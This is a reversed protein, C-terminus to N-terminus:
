KACEELGTRDRWRDKFCSKGRVPINRRWICGCHPGEGGEPSLKLHWRWVCGTIDKEVVRGLRETRGVCM